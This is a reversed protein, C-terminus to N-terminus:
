KSHCEQLIAQLEETNNLYDDYNRGATRAYWYRSNWEDGEIKHLVAHLWNANSESLEQAINHAAHWNGVLASKVAEILSKNEM